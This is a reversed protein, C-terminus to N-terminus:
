RKEFDDPDAALAPISPLPQATPQPAAPPMSPPPPVATATPDPRAPAPEGSFEGWLQASAGEVHVKRLRLVVRQIASSYSFSAVGGRMAREFVAEMGPLPFPHALEVGHETQVQGGVLRAGLLAHDGVPRLQARDIVDFCKMSSDIAYISNQTWVELMRWTVDQFPAKRNEQVLEIEIGQPAKFSAAKPEDSM